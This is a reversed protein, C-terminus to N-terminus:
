FKCLKVAPTDRPANQLIRLLKNNLIMLRILHNTYTNGYIEIGYALRSHIFAFYIMKPADFNIKDRIKYFISTFKIIKNYVYDIHNLWSLESDVLVRLYKSCDVQQIEVDQSKSITCACRANRVFKLLGLASKVFLLQQLSATIVPCLERFIRRPSKASCV